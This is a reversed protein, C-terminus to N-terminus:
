TWQNVYQHIDQWYMIAKRIFHWISYYPQSLSWNSIEHFQIARRPLSSHKAQAHSITIRCIPYMSSLMGTRRRVMIGDQYLQQKCAIAREKLLGSCRRFYNFNVPILTLKNNGPRTSKSAYNFKYQDSEILELRLITVFHNKRSFLLTIRM